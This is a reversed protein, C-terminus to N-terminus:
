FTEDNFMKLAALIFVWSQNSTISKPQVTKSFGYLKKESQRFCQMWDLITPLSQDESLMAAVPIGMSKKDPNSVILEYYLFQRGDEARRVVSGTADWFLPQASTLKHNLKLGEISWYLIYCPKLSNKHIFGYDNNEKMKNMISLLSTFCNSDSRNHRSESAIQRFVHPSAGLGEFNGAVLTKVDKDAFVEFYLNLPKVGNKFDVKLLDREAKRIPRSRCESICHSIDGTYLVSVTLDCTMSLKLVVSCDVFQCVAKATFLVKSNSLPLAVKHYRFVFSCYPNSFKVGNLFIHQWTGAKFCRKKQSKRLSLWDKETLDFCTQKELSHKFRDGPIQVNLIDLVDENPLMHLNSEPILLGCQAPMISPSASVVSSADPLIKEYSADQCDRDELHIQSNSGMMCTDNNNLTPETMPLSETLGTDVRSLNQVGTGFGPVTDKVPLTDNVIFKLISKCRNQGCEFVIADDHVNGPFPELNLCSLHYWHECQECQVMFGKDVSQWKQKCICYQSRAHKRLSAPIWNDSFRKRSGVRASSGVAINSSVEADVVVPIEELPSASALKSSRNTDVHDEISSHVCSTLKLHNRFFITKLHQRNSKSNKKALAIAIVGYPGDAQLSGRNHKTVHLTFLQNLRVHDLKKTYRKRKKQRAKFNNTVTVGEAVLQSCSILFFFLDVICGVSTLRMRLNLIYICSDSMSFTVMVSSHKM